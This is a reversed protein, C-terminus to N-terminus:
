KLILFLVFAITLVFCAIVDKGIYQLYDRTKIRIPGVDQSSYSILIDNLMNNEKPEYNPIDKEDIELKKIVDNFKINVLEKYFYNLRSERRLDCRTLDEMVAHMFAVNGYKFLTLKQPLQFQLLETISVRWSKKFQTSTRSSFLVTGKNIYKCVRVKKYEPFLVKCIKVLKIRQEKTYM